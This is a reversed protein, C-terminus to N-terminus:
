KAADTAPAPSKPRFQETLAQMRPGIESMRRMMIEMMRQQVLPQKDILAQGAPTSHFSSMAALEEKSFVESYLQAIAERMEAGAMVGLTEDMIKAQLEAFKERQDEPIRMRSAQQAFIPRMAEKQQAAMKAMMEDFRMAQLMAEADALTAPTAPVASAGSEGISAHVLAVKRVVGDKELSLENTKADFDKLAHGEFSDGLELWKSSAGAATTLVFRHQGGMTLVANFTPPLEAAFATAAVALFWLFLARM